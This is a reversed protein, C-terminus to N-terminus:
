SAEFMANVDVGHRHLLDAIRFHKGHLAAVLPTVMLGGRANCEYAGSAQGRPTLTKKISIHSATKELTKRHSSMDTYMM